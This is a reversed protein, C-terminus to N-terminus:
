ESDCREGGRDRTAILQLFDRFLFPIEMGEKALPDTAM